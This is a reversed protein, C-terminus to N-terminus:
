TARGPHWVLDRKGDVKRRHVEGIEEAEPLRRAIQFRDLDDCHKALENSSLGPHSYVLDIVRERQHRAAGSANMEAAAAHSSAPDTKRARAEAEGRVPALPMDDYQAPAPASDFLGLQNM